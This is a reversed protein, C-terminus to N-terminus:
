IFDISETSAKKFIDSSENTYGIEDSVLLPPMVELHSKSNKKVRLLALKSNKNIKPHVFRINIPKFNKIKGIETFVEDIRKADFCFFLEGNTKLKKYSSVLFQELPLSDSYRAAKLKDCESKFVKDTYFPPNSVIFDFNCIDLNLFDCCIAKAEINNEAINIKCLEYMQPLIEVSNLTINFDRALLLGLIGCGAGIDLVNGKIKFHSIFDYLFLTDSTYRFGDKYQFLRM